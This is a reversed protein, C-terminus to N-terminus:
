HRHILYVFFESDVKAEVGITAEGAFHLVQGVSLHHVEEGQLTVEVEGKVLTFFVEQGKHDHAPVKEGAALQLHVLQLLANNVLIGRKTHITGLM